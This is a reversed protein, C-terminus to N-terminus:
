GISNCAGEPEQTSERAGGSTDRHEMWYSRTTDVETNALYKM